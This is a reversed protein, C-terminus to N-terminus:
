YRRNGDALRARVDADDPVGSQEGSSMAASTGGGGHREGIRPHDALATTVDAPTWAEAHAAASGQLAAVAAFPREDVVRDAWWGVDACARLLAAAEAAPAQNFDDLQM